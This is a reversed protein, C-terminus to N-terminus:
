VEIQSLNNTRNYTGDKLYPLTVFSESWDGDLYVYFRQGDLEVLAYKHSLAEEERSWNVKRIQPAIKQAEEKTFCGKTTDRAIQVQHDLTRWWRGFENVAERELKNAM